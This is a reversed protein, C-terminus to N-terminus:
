PRALWEADQRALITEAKEPEAMLAKVVREMRMSQSGKILVVDGPQLERTLFTIVESSNEFSHVASENMGSERAQEAIRRARVGLTVLIDVCEKAITGIRKHEDASYSGLELMDALVAIRRGMTAPAGHLSRLAEETAVPSANYSDDIIVGGRKNQILRMRAPPPEYDEGLSAMESLTAGASLGGSIGALIAYVHTQGLVGYVSFHKKEEKYSVSFSIGNPVGQKGLVRYHSAKVDAEKSVGYTLRLVGEPPSIASVHRDDSNLIATTGPVLRTIPYAEEKLVDEPSAYYEVHVPVDPIRTVIVVDPKIWSLRKSIDGPRDAGVEIILWQPYPTALILMLFGEILNKLWQVVSGWGNPVGLVTLPVGIDSNFSKESKRVFTYNKLAAYVADKTSTKGVSGTVLIIKPKYKKLVSRAEFTLLAVIIDRIFEKM